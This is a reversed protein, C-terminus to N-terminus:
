DLRVNDLLTSIQDNIKYNFNEENFNKFELNIFFKKMKSLKKKAQKVPAKTITLGGTTANNNFCYDILYKFNSDTELVTPNGIVIQMFKARTFAVNFRKSDSLFGIHKNGDHNFVKSRVATFIIVDKERGQFLQVTGVEIKELGDEALMKKIKCKQATFPTIIGIDTQKYTEKILDKVVHMVERCEM